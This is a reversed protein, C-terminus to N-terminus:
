PQTILESGRSRRLGTDDGARGVRVVYARGDASDLRQDAVPEARRPMGVSQIHALFRGRKEAIERAGGQPREVTSTIAALVDAPKHAANEVLERESHRGREPESADRLAYRRSAVVSL